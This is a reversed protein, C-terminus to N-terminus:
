FCYIAMFLDYMCVYLVYIVVFSLKRSPRGIPRGALVPDVEAEDEHAEVDGHLPDAADRLAVGGPERSNFFRAHAGKLVLKPSELTLFRAQAKESM